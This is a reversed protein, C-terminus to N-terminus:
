KAPAVISVCTLGLNIFLMILIQKNTIAGVSLTLQSEVDKEKRQTNAMKGRRGLHLDLIFLAYDEEQDHPCQCLNGSIGVVCEAQEVVQWVEDFPGPPSATLWLRSSSFKDKDYRVNHTLM